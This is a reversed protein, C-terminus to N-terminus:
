RPAGCTDLTFHQILNSAAPSGDSNKEKRSNAYIHPVGTGKDTLRELARLLLKDPMCAVLRDLLPDPTVLRSLNIPKLEASGDSSKLQSLM